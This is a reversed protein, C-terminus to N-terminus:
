ELKQMADFVDRLEADPDLEGHFVAGLRQQLFLGLLTRHCRKPNTCYCTLVVRDQKLLHDWVSRHIKHSRTMEQLYPAAYALKWEDDTLAAGERRRALAPGLLAWSPAFVANGSKRTINLSDPDRCSIRATWVQLPM